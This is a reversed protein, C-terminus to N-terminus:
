NPLLRVLFTDGGFTITNPGTIVYPIPVGLGGDSLGATGNTDLPPFGDPQCAGSLSFTVTSSTSTYCGREYGVFIGTGGINNAQAQVQLYTNDPLLVVFGGDKDGAQGFSGIITSATSTVATLVFAGDPTTLTLTSGSRVLTGTLGEQPTVSNDWVGCGGNSDVTGSLIAFANTTANWRYAGYEVGNGNSLGCSADDSRSAFAYTGDPWFTLFNRKGGVLVSYTGALSSTTNTVCQVQINQVNLPETMPLNGAGRLVTCTQTPGTPQSAITVHFESGPSYFDPFNFKGRAQPTWPAGDNIRVTLGTGTYGFIPGGIIPGNNICLVTVNTVNAAGVTGTGNSVTCTQGPASPQTGVTVSYPTGAPVAPFTFGPQDINRSIPSGGSLLLVLGNGNQNTITGGITFVTVCNIAINTVNANGVTGTANTMTCTQTPSSPQISVLATYATGAPYTGLFTFTTAGAAPNVRAGGNLTLSLGTGVLGTITGGVTYRVDVCAVSVNTVNAAGVTGSGNSVTCTQSGPQTGVTVAYNTGSTVAPFAFSTGGAAVPLPTGGNFLLVLGAGTLGTITGGVTYTNAPNTTCTVGVNTVSGTGVTGSGGAVTCTQGAPHAGVTVAYSTGPAVTGPFVFSTAGATVALPSSGNLLLSLGTGTLGTVTGGITFTNTACNIVVNTVNATATGTGNAVTCTQSPGSPQTKVTVSYATGASVTSAFAFSTAGAAVALDGGGNNQLVLGSGTLGTVAGGLTYSVTVCTVAINAVTTAGVTGTGNAVTCNQPAATAPSQASTASPQTGITVTYNTGSPVGQFAFAGAGAAVALPTGGNLQLTLGTGTLGTITGGVAFTNTTCTVVVTTVNATGISGNGNTVTCTQSPNTPQTAVSVNYPVGKPAQGTLTFSTAGAAVPLDGCFCDPRTPGNNNLVLGSGVLGTVTGGVTYNPVPPETGGGGGGCSTVLVAAILVAFNRAVRM